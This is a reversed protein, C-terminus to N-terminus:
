RRIEIVAAIDLQPVTFEVEAGNANPCSVFSLRGKATGQDASYSMVSRLKAFPVHVKVHVESAPTVTDEFSSLRRVNLNLLHV